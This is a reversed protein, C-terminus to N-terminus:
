VSWFPRSVPRFPGFSPQEAQYLPGGQSSRRPSPITGEKAHRTLDRAIKRFAIAYCLAEVAEDENGLEHEDEYEAQFLISM